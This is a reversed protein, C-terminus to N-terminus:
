ILRGEEDWMFWEKSSDKRVPNEKARKRDVRAKIMLICCVMFQDRSLDCWWMDELRFKHGKAEKWIEIKNEEYGEIIYDTVPYYYKDGRAEATKARIMLDVLDYDAQYNIRQAMRLAAPYPLLPNLTDAVGRVGGGQKLEVETQEALWRLAEGRSKGTLACVIDILGGGAGCAFCYFTSDNFTFAIPNDGHHIPCAMSKEGPEYGLLRLIEAVTIRSSIEDFNFM